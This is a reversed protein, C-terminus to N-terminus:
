LHQHIGYKGRDTKAVLNHPFTRVRMTVRLLACLMEPADVIHNKKVALARLRLEVRSYSDKCNDKLSTKLRRSKTSLLFSSCTLRNSKGVALPIFKWGALTPNELRLGKACGEPDRRDSCKVFDWGVLQQALLATFTHAGTHRKWIRCVNAIAIAVERAKARDPLARIKIVSDVDSKGNAAPIYFIWGVVQLVRLWRSTTEKDGTPCQKALKSLTSSFENTNWGLTNRFIVLLLTSFSQPATPLIEDFFWNPIKVYEKTIPQM